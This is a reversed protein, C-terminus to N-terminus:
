PITSFDAPFALCSGDGVTAIPAVYRPVFSGLFAAIEAVADRRDRPGPGAPGPHELMDAIAHALEAPREPPVLRSSGLGAIEPIGGVNSAVFPLGCAAAELLVNPVGESRSALVLLDAARFWDPLHEHEIAGHFSVRSKIGLKDALRELKSKSSGEGVLHLRWPGISVSLRRCAELLVDVGKV